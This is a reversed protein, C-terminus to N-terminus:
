TEYMSSCCFHKSTLNTSGYQRYRYCLFFLLPRFISHILRITSIPLLWFKSRKCYYYSFNYSQFGRIWFTQELFIWGISSIQYRDTLHLISHTRIMKLHKIICLKLMSHSMSTELYMLDIQAEWTWTLIWM